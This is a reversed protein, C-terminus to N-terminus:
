KAPPGGSVRPSSVESGVHRLTAILLSLWPCVFSGIWALGLWYDWYLDWWVQGGRKGVLSASKLVFPGFHFLIWTVVGLGIIGFTLLSIGHLRRLSRDGIAQTSILFPSKWQVGEAEIHAIKRAIWGYNGALILALALSGGLVALCSETFLQSLLPDQGYIKRGTQCVEWATVLPFMVGLASFVFLFWYVLSLKPHILFPILLVLLLLWTFPNILGCSIALGVFLCVIVTGRVTLAWGM